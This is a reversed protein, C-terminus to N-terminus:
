AAALYYEHLLGGLQDRRKVAAGPPLHMSLGSVAQDGDPRTIELAFTSFAGATTNTM